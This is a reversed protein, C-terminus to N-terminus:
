RQTGNKNTPKKDSLSGLESRKRNIIKDAEFDGSDMAGYNGGTEAPTSPVFSYDTSDIPFISPQLSLGKDYKVAADRSHM